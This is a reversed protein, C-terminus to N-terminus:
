RLLGLKEFPGNKIPQWRSGTPALVLLSLIRWRLFGLTYLYFQSSQLALSKSMRPWLYTNSTLQCHLCPGLPSKPKVVAPTSFTCDRSHQSFLQQDKWAKWANIHSLDLVCSVPALCQFLNEEGTVILIGLEKVFRNQFKWSFRLSTRIFFNCFSRCFLM